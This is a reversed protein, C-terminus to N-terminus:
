VTFTQFSCSPKNADIRFGEAGFQKCQWWGAISLNRKLGQGCEPCVGKEVIALAQSIREDDWVKQCSNCRSLFNSKRRGCECKSVNAM